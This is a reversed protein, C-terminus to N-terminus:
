KACGQMIILTDDVYQLIPFNSTSLLPIPLKNLGLDKAKNIVTQLLDAALVFLLHAFPTARGSGRKCHFTKRLVANLLVLSTGFNFISKMWSFWREGFGKAKM